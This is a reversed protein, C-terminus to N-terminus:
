ADTKIPRARAMARPSATESGVGAAAPPFGESLFGAAASLFPAGAALPGSDM